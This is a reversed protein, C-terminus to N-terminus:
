AHRAHRTVFTVRSSAGMWWGTEVVERRGILEVLGAAVARVGAGCTAAAGWPLGPGGAGAVSAVCGMVAACRWRAYRWRLLRATVCAMPSSARADRTVNSASSPLSRAKSSSSAALEICM